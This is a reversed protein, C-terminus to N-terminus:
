SIILKKRDPSQTETMLPPRMLQCHITPIALCSDKGICLTTLFTFGKAGLSLSKTHLSQKWSFSGMRLDACEKFLPLLIKPNQICLFLNKSRLVFLENDVSSTEMTSRFEAGGPDDQRETSSTPPSDTCLQSGISTYKLIFSYCIVVWM